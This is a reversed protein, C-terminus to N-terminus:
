FRQVHGNKDYVHITGDHLDKNKDLLLEIKKIDIPRVEIIRFVLGNHLIIFGMSVIVGLNGGNYRNIFDAIRINMDDFDLYVIGHTGKGASFVPSKLNVHAGNVYYQIGWANIGTNLEPHLYQFEFIIYKEPKIISWGLKDKKFMLKRNPPPANHFRINGDSLALRTNSSKENNDWRINNDKKVLIAM